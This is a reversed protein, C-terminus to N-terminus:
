AAERGAFEVGGDEGGVGEVAGEVVVSAFAAIAGFLRM